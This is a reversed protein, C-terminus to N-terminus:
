HSHGRVGTNERSCPKEVKASNVNPALCDKTTRHVTSHKATDGAEVGCICTAGRGSDHCGSLDESM